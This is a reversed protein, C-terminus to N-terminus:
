GRQKATIAIVQSLATDGLVVGHHPLPGKPGRPGVSGFDGGEFVTSFGGSLGSSVGTKDVAAQSVLDVIQANVQFAAHAAAKGAFETLRGSAIIQQLAGPSIEFKFTGIQMDTAAQQNQEAM